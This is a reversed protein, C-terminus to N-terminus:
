GEPALEWECVSSGHGICRSHVLRHERGTHLLLLEEMMGTFMTCSPGSEELRATVCDAVAVAFPKTATIASGAHLSKLASASARRASRMALAAPGRHLIARWLDPTHRFRWRALRQGTERLIAEADPRRMVLRFLGLAEGLPVRSGNRNATSYRHIQTEVVGTLGLRRPLSVSLDEDELIEGPRDHSRVSELLALPFAAAVTGDVRAGANAGQQSM